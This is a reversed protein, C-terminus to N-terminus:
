TPGEKGAHTTENWRCATCCCCTFCRKSCRRSACRNRWPIERHVGKPSLLAAAVVCEDDRVVAVLFVTVVSSITVPTVLRRQPDAVATAGLGDRYSVVLIFFFIPIMIFVFSLSEWTFRFSCPSATFVGEPEFVDKELARGPTGAAAGDVENPAEVWTTFFFLPVVSCNDDDM